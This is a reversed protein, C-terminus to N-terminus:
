SACSLTLVIITLTCPLHIPIYIVRVTLQMSLKDNKSPFFLEGLLTLIKQGIVLPPTFVQRTFFNLYHYVSVTFENINTLSKNPSKRSWIAAFMFFFDGCVYAM